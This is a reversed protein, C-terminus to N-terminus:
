IYGRKHALAGGARGLVVGAGPVYLLLGSQFWQGVVGLAARPLPPLLPDAPDFVVEPTISYGFRRVGGGATYFQGIAGGPRRGPDPAAGDELYEQGVFGLGFLGTRPNWELRACETYVVMKDAGTVADPEYMEGTVPVGLAARGGLERFQQYFGGDLTVGTEAFVERTPVPPPLTIALAPDDFYAMGRALAGNEYAATFGGHPDIVFFSSADYGRVTVAHEAYVLNVLKGTSLLQPVRSSARLGLPIWTVVPHGQALESRVADLDYLLRAQITAPLYGRAKLLEVGRQIGRAHIGYDDLDQNAQIEGRFTVDPDEGSGLLLRLVDEDVDFGLLRLATHTAAYECSLAWRQNYSEIDPAAPLYASSPAAGATQVGARQPPGAQAWARRAPRAVATLAAWAAVVQRRNATLM